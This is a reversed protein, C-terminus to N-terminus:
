RWMHWAICNRPGVSFPEVAERRDNVFRPDRSGDDADLWREPHFEDALAFNKSSYSMAWAWIDLMTGEPVHRGCIVDGGPQCTRPLAPPVPPYMRMAEELVALMYKLKQVSHMDIEEERRFAGRVEAALRKQVDPHKCVFYTAGSLATATTESGALVVLRMNQDIEQRTLTVGDETKANFLADVFDPRGTTLELRKSIQQSAFDGQQQQPKGIGLVKRLVPLLRPIYWRAAVMMGFQGVSNFLTNIWPHYSSTALCDFPAGFALDGIIDFTTFNFWSVINVTTPQDNNKQVLTRLRNILLDIYQAILPYQEQMVKASFGHALARRARTHDERNAGLMTFRSFFYFDVDKGNEGQGAKRHGRIDRWAAPDTYSLRNPAVRVIEGYKEHLHPIIFSQKGSLWTKAYPLNTAAWLKPGPYDRLPHFYLNYIIYSASLAIGVLLIILPLATFLSLGFATHLNLIAM